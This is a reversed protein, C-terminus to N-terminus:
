RLWYGQKISLYMAKERLARLGPDGNGGSRPPTRSITAGTGADTDSHTHIHTDINTPRRSNPIPKSPIYATSAVDQTLSVPPTLHDSATSLDCGNEPDLNSPLSGDLRRTFLPNTAQDPQEQTPAVDREKGTHATNGDERERKRKRMVGLLGSKSQAQVATGDLRKMGLFGFTPDFSVFVLPREGNMNPPGATFVMGGDGDGVMVSLEGVKGGPCLLDHLAQPADDPPWTIITTPGYANESDQIDNHERDKTQPRVM